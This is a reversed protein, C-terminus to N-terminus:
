VGKLKILQFLSFCLERTRLSHYARSFKLSVLVCKSPLKIEKIHEEVKLGYTKSLIKNCLKNRSIQKNILYTNTNRM